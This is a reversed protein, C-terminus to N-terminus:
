APLEVMMLAAAVGGALWGAHWSHIHCVFGIEKESDMMTVAVAVCCVM